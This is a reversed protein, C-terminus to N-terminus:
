DKVEDVSSTPAGTLDGSETPRENASTSHHALRANPNDDSLSQIEEESSKQTGDSAHDDMWGPVINSLLAVYREMAEEPSMNGLRQWANWKARASLKLAMPQPEHCPGEMAVKQLSYFEMMVDSGVMAFRGQKEGREVFDRAKGFEKELESREIGEWEEEDSLMGEDEDIVNRSIREEEECGVLREHEDKQDVGNEGVDVNERREIGENEGGGVDGFGKVEIEKVFFEQLDAVKAAQDVFKARKKKKGGSGRIKSLREAGAGHVPSKLHKKHGGHDHDLDVTATRKSGKEKVQDATSPPVSFSLVLSVLGAVLFCLLIASSAKWLLESGVEM